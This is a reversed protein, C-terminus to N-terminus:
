VKIWQNSCTDYAFTSVFTKGCECESTIKQIAVGSSTVYTEENTIYYQHKHYKMYLKM